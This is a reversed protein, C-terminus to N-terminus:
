FYFSTQVYFGKRVSGDGSPNQEETKKVLNYAATSAAPALLMGILLGKYKCLLYGAAASAYSAGVAAGVSAWDNRSDDGWIEGAGYVGLGVGAPYAIVLGYLGGGAFEDSSFLNGVPIGAMGVAIGGLYGCGVEAAVVGAGDSWAPAAAFAAFAVLWSLRKM